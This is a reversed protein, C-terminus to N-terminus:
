SKLIILQLKENDAYDDGNFCIQINSGDVRKLFYDGHAANNGQANAESAAKSLRLGNFYVQTLPSAQMADVASQNDNAIAVNASVQSSADAINVTFEAMDIQDAGVADNALSFQGNTITLDSGGAGIALLDHVSCRGMAGSAGSEDGFAIFDDKAVATGTLANEFDLRLINGQKEIGTEATIAGTGTFQVWNQHQTDIDEGPGGVDSSQVYGQDANAIGMEVFVAASSLDTLDIADSARELAWPTGVGHNTKAFYIGNYSSKGATVGSPVGLLNNTDASVANTVAQTLPDKQQLQVSAGSGLGAINLAGDNQFLNRISAAVTSTTESGDNRRVNATKRSGNNEGSGGGFNPSTAGDVFTIRFYVDDFELDVVNSAAPVADVSFTMSGKLGAQDKVLIRTGTDSNGFTIPEGDINGLAQNNNACRLENAGDNYVVGAHNTALEQTTAVTVPKMWRLGASTADVYAKVAKTTPVHDDNAADTAFTDSSITIDSMAHGGLSISTNAVLTTVTAAAATVAGIVCGDIAGDGDDDINIGGNAVLATIAANSGVGVGDIAGSDININTLAKSNMNLAGSGDIVLAESNNATGLATLDLYELETTTVLSETIQGNGDSILARNNNALAELQKLKLLTKAM